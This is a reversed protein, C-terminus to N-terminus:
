PAIGADFGIAIMTTEGLVPHSEVSAAVRLGRLGGSVGVGGRLPRDRASLSAAWSGVNWGLDVTRAAGGSMPDARRSISARVGRTELVGGIELARTAPPSQGNKWLQPASAWMRIVRSAAVWAGGGIELGVGRGLPTELLPARDKRLALRIAGGGQAHAAGAAVGLANWGLDRDGTQSIGLGIRAAGFGLRLAAARTTLEPLAFWRTSSGEAALGSRAPALGTEIFALPSSVPGAPVPSSFDQADSGTARALAALLLALIRRDIM